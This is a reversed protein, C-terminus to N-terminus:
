IGVSLSVTKAKGFEDLRGTFVNFSNGRMQTWIKSGQELEWNFTFVQIGMLSFRALKMSLLFMREAPGYALLGLM